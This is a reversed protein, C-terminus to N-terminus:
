ALKVVTFFQKGVLIPYADCDFSGEFHLEDGVLRPYVCSSFEGFFIESYSSKATIQRPENESVDYIKFHKAGSRITNTILYVRNEVNLYTFEPLCSIDCISWRGIEFRALNHKKELAFEYVDGLSQTPNAVIRTVRLTYDTAPIQFGDSPPRFDTIRDIHRYGVIYGFTGVCLCIPTLLVISLLLSLTKRLM